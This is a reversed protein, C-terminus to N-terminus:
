KLRARGGDFSACGDLMAKLKRWRAIIVEIQPHEKSTDALATLTALAMEIEEQYEMLIERLKNEYAAQEKEGSYTGAIFKEMQRNSTTMIRVATQTRYCIDESDLTYDSYYKLTSSSFLLPPDIGWINTIM